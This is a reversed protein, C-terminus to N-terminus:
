QVQARNRYVINTRRRWHRKIFRIPQGRRKVALM